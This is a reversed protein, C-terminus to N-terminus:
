FLLLCLRFNLLLFFTFLAKSEKAIRLAYRFANVAPKSFDCPVLIKKM